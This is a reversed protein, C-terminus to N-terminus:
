PYSSKSLPAALFNTKLGCPKILTQRPRIPADRCRAPRSAGDPPGRPALREWRGGSAVYVRLPPSPPRGAGAARRRLRACGARRVLPLEAAETGDGLRALRPRRGVGPWDPGLFGQLWRRRAPAVRRGRGSRAHTSVATVLAAASSENSKPTPSQRSALMSSIWNRCASIRATLPVLRRQDAVEHDPAALGVAGEDPM